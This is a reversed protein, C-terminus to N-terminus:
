HGGHGHEHAGQFVKHKPDAKSVVYALLDLVEDKTLKDLAGRPMLSNKSQTRNDINSKKLVLPRASALPNEIVKVVDKTEEVIMGTVSKGSSLDFQYVRYKEDIKLAPDLIHKLVEASDWKPDLKTLDPGFETAPGQGGFKHCSICAAVKFMQKGNAFSRGALTKAVPELEEYKWEKRPRNFKLLEDAIPVKNKALYGEADAQYAELDAVVYLAGHMRRWHGPYTCVYPYVGPKKPAVLSLKQSQRPQLLRSAQMVKNSPPVYHREAARPQTATKEALEGIEELSGPQIFVLNHPMTDTNEFIVEFPKGAQVVLREKDYIMQEVVTGLRLVRVGLEGLQKRIARAEAAPLLGAVSDALQLADLPEPQTREKVPVKRVYALLTALVPKAQDAPWARNPIRQLARIAEHRDSDRLHRALAKVAEAEQGRMGPLARMAARRILREPSATGVAFEAHVPPAPNKDRQFVVNRDADLVKLTFGKLRSGLNGDTRNWVVVKEIPYERGLDVEWWPSRTGERTHTQSGDGFNGSTNGDIAKSADGGYDTSSQRAKGKLAVNVADFFVQVVALSL